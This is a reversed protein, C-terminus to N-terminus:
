GKKGTGRNYLDWNVHEDTNLDLPWPPLDRYGIDSHELAKTFWKTDLKSTSTQLIEMLSPHESFLESLTGWWLKLIQSASMRGTAYGQGEFGGLRNGSLDAWPVDPRGFDVIRLIQKRWVFYYWSGGAELSKWPLNWGPHLRAWHIHEYELWSSLFSNGGDKDGWGDEDEALFGSDPIRKHDHLATLVKDLSEQSPKLVLIGSRMELLNHESLAGAPSRYSFVDDINSVPFVSDALMAVKSYEKFGYGLLMLYKELPCQPCNELATELKKTDLDVHKCGFEECIKRAYNNKEPDSHKLTVILHEATTNVKRLLKATVLPRIIDDPSQIFQIFAHRGSDRDRPNLDNKFPMEFPWENERKYGADFEALRGQMESTSVILLEQLKKLSNSSQVALQESAAKEALIHKMRYLVFLLLIIIVNFCCFSIWWDRNKSNKEPIQGTEYIERRAEPEKPLFSDGEEDSM